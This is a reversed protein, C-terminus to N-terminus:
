RVRLAASAGGMGPNGAADTASVLVRYSGRPLGCVYSCTLTANVRSGPVVIKKALKGSSDRFRLTVTATPSGPRPDDVAYRFTARRGSVARAPWDAVPTPRRTDIHVQCARKKEVNGARDVSRYWVTTTGDASHDAPAALTVSRGKTWTAGGDLSYQTYAVGTGGRNDSAHFRLTVPGNHWAAGAGSVTTVPRKLDTSVSFVTGDPSLASTAAETRGTVDSVMNIRSWDFSSIPQGDFACGRFKALGFNALPLISGDGMSPAEVIVEVSSRQPPISLKATEQFTSFTQGTTQNTMSLTFGEPSANGAPTWSVTATIVDGAHIPLYLGQARNKPLNLFVPKDPYMEYWADYYVGGPISYGETGIQEVTQSPDNVPDASDGDLGVWFASDTLFSGGDKVRPQTWTATVTTFPGGIVDYGSWNPSRSRTGLLPQPEGLPHVGISPVSSPLVLRPVTRAGSTSARTSNTAAHVRATTAGVPPTAASAAPACIAGAMVPLAALGVAPVAWPLVAKWRRV